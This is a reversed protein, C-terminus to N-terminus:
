IVHNKMLYQKGIVSYHGLMKRTGNEDELYLCSQQYVAKVKQHYKELKFIENIDM